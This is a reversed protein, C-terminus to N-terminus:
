LTTSYEGPQLVVPVAKRLMNPCVHIGRGVERVGRAPLAEMLDWYLLKDPVGYNQIDCLLRVWLTIRISQHLHLVNYPKLLLVSADWLITDDEKVWTLLSVLNLQQKHATM